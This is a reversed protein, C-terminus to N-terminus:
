IRINGIDEIFEKFTVGTPKSLQNMSKKLQIFDKHQMSCSSTSLTKKISRQSQNM